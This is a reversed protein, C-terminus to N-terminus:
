ITGLVKRVAFELHVDNPVDNTFLYAVIISNIMMDTAAKVQRKSPKVGHNEFRAEIRFRLRSSNEETLLVTSKNSM